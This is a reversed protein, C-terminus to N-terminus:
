AAKSAYVKLSEKLQLELTSNVVRLDPILRSVDAELLNDEVTEYIVEDLIRADEVIMPLSYGQKLRSAGHRAAADFFATDIKRGPSELVQVITQLLKPIHDVREHDSLRLRRLEPRSKMKKLVAATIHDSKEHLITAIRKPPLPKHSERTTLRREITEVLSGVEIPKLLYDDVQTRIAQLASEFAPYGTLIFNVCDPQTRRMASVITFGDGPQGINLDAILVHFKQTAIKAIAQAVTAAVEVSFGHQELVQPLTQRITEEDDVFLVRNTQVGSGASRATTHPM